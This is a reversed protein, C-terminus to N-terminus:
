DCFNGLGASAASFRACFNFVNEKTGNPSANKPKSERRQFPPSNENTAGRCFDAYRSRPLSGSKNEPFAATQRRAAVIKETSYFKEL